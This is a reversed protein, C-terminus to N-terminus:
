MITMVYSSCQADLGFAPETEDSGHTSRDMLRMRSSSPTGGDFSMMPMGSYVRTHVSFFFASPETSTLERASPM